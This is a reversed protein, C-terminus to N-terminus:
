GMMINEYIKLIRKKVYNDWSLEKARRKGNEGLNRALEEDILVKILTEATAKVDREYVLLGTVGDAVADPVGGSNSAVVPKGCAGAELYVIGFGEFMDNVNVPTHAYIDCLHYYKVLEDGNKAGLFYIDKELKLEKVLKYLENKWHGDGIILYKVNPVHDKVIKFANIMIDYGKRPKLAGVSLIIKENGSKFKKELDSINVRKAFREFNVANPIVCTNNIGSAERIRKETYKSACHVLKASKYAWSLLFRDPQQNLPKVGYTGQVGIILPKRHIKAAIAATIAYPFSFLSHIIDGKYKIRIASLLIKLFNLTRASFVPDPLIARVEYDVKKAFNEEKKPIYLTIECEKSLGSCLEYTINGWGNTPNMSASIIEVKM